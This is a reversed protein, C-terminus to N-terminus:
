HRRQKLSKQFINGMPFTRKAKFKVELSKMLRLKQLQARTHRVFYEKHIKM